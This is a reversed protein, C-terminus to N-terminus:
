IVREGAVWVQQPLVDPRLVERLPDASQVSFVTCDAAKGPSLTGDEAEMGVARAARVTAMEWLLHPDADPALRHLLRLDDVLNLDPASACSDTGVAVTIGRALMERWRHPPHGFYAHTRPCYVVSARGRSLLDLGADDCYNVHALLTPYALLGISHAFEIPEGGFTPVPEAWRGLREWIQRFPGTHHRLFEAEDPTEALHTALPLNRQRAIELCQRYGDLDVTYPAHPTLGIRLTESAQSDDLARALLEEYRPRHLALGLAEGYSVCRLQADRLLPRTHHGQQTIDGVTTVGLHRCQEVGIAVADTVVQELTRGNEDVGMRARLGAIWDAFGGTPPDGCCCTSLELHTHANVLGPLVVARGLDVPDADRYARSMERADGVDAIRGRAVVVAAGRLPPRDMPAVWDATIITPRDSM